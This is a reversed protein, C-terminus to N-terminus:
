QNGSGAGSSSPDPTRTYGKLRGTRDFHANFLSRQNGTEVLRWSLVTENLGQYANEDAPPGLRHLLESRDIGAPLGAIQADTVPVESRPPFTGACAGLVAIASVLLLSRAVKMFRGKMSLSVLPGLRGITSNRAKRAGNVRERLRHWADDGGTEREYWACDSPSPYGPFRKGGLLVLRSTAQCASQYM